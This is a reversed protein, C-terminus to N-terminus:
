HTEEHRVICMGNHAIAQTSMGVSKSGRMRSVSQDLGKCISSSMSAIFGKCIGASMGINFSTFVCKYEHRQEHSSCPNAHMKFIVNSTM